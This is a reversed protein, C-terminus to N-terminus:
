RKGNLINLSVKRLPWTIALASSAVKGVGGVAAVARRGPVVLEVDVQTRRQLRRDSGGALIPDIPAVEPVADHQDIRAAIARLRDRQGAREVLDEARLSGAVLL